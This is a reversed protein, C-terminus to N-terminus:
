LFLKLQKIKFKVSEYHRGRHQPINLYRLLEAISITKNVAIIFDSDSCKINKVFGEESFNKTIHM